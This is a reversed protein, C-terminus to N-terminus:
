FYDSERYTIKNSSATMNTTNTWAVTTAAITRDAIIPYDGSAYIAQTLVGNVRISRDRCDVDVEDSAGLTSLDLVLATAMPTGSTTITATASGAGTMSFHIRPWVPARGWNMTLTGDGQVTTSSQDFSRGGDMLLFQAEYDVGFGTSVDAKIPDSLQLPVVHYQLLYKGDRYATVESKPLMRTFKFPVGRVWSPLGSGVPWQRSAASIIDMESQDGGHEVAYNLASQLYLPSMARQLTRVQDNVASETAGRISGRMNLVRTGTLPNYMEVGGGNKVIDAVIESHFNTPTSFGINDVRFGSPTQLRGLVPQNFEIGNWSISLRENADDFISIM